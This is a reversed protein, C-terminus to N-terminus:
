SITIDGSQDTVTIVHPSTASRPVDVSTSGSATIASVQYSTSGPPLVLTIDGSSDSVQVRDPVASFTVTIDGSQDALTVDPSALGTGTIDGSDVRLVAHPGSLSTVAIDGSSATIVSRGSIGTASVNGSATSLSVRGTLDRATLDGAGLSVVPSGGRPVTVALNISCEGAPFTCRSRFTVSSPGRRWSIGPQVLAYRVAGTVRIRGAQGPSVSVDAAGARVTAVQGHVPVTLNVRYSGVGVAAVVELGTWAILALAVPVGIALTLWRGATLPLPGIM